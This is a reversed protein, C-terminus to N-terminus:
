LPGTPLKPGTGIAEQGKKIQEAVKCARGAIVATRKASTDINTVATDPVMCWDKNKTLYASLEKEAAALSRLKPCSVQPDLQGKPSSKALKNLEDIIGQRKKMLNGIDQNCEAAMAPSAVVLGFTLASISLM